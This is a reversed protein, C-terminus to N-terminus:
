RPVVGPPLLYRFTRYQHHGSFGPNNCEGQMGWGEFQPHFGIPAIPAIPAIPPRCGIGGFGNFGVGVIGGVVDVRQQLIPRPVVQIPLVTCSACWMAIFVTLVMRIRLFVNKTKM